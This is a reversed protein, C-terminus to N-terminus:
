AGSFDDPGYIQVIESQGDGVINRFRKSWEVAEDLTKVQIIAWGGLLEKAEIFPGDTLSFKGGQRKLRKGTQALAGTAVLVGAKRGDEVLKGMEAM